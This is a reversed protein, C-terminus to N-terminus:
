LVIRGAPAEQGVASRRGEQSDRIARRQHAERRPGQRGELRRAQRTRSRSQEERRD